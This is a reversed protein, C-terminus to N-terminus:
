ASRSRPMTNSRLPQRTVRFVSVRGVDPRFYTGNGDDGEARDVGHAEGPRRVAAGAGTCPKFGLSERAHVTRSAAQPALDVALDIDMTLRAYGHLVTAVGGVVVYKVGADNLAKFLPLYLSM